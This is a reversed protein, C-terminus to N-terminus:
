KLLTQNINKTKKLFFEKWVVTPGGGRGSGECKGSRNKIGDVQGRETKRMEWEPEKDRRGAGARDKVNGVGTRYGTLGGRGIKWM